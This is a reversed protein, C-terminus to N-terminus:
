VIATIGTSDPGLIIASALGLLLQLNSVLGKTLYPAACWCVRFQAVTILIQRVGLCVPRILRDYCLQSKWPLTTHTRIPMRERWLQKPGMCVACTFICILVYVWVHLRKEFLAVASIPAVTTTRNNLAPSSALLWNGDPFDQSRGVWDLNRRPKGRDCLLHQITFWIERQVAKKVIHLGELTMFNIGIKRMVEVLLVLPCQLPVKL